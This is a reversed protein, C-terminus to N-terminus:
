DLCDLAEIGRIVRDLWRLREKIEARRRILKRIQQSKSRPNRPSLKRSAM